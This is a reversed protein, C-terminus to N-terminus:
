RAVHAPDVDVAATHVIRAVAELHLQRLVRDILIEDKGVDGHGVHETGDEEGHVAVVHACVDLVNAGARAGEAADLQGM